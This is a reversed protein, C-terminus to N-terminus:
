PWWDPLEEGTGLSPGTVAAQAGAREGDGQRLQEESRGAVGEGEVSAQLAGDALPGSTCSSTGSPTAFHKSPIQGALAAVCPLAARGDTDGACLQEIAEGSPV